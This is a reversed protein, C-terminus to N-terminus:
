TAALGNKRAQEALYRNKEKLEAALFNAYWEDETFQAKVETLEYRKVLGETFHQRVTIGDRKCRELIPELLNMKGSQKLVFIAYHRMTKDETDDKLEKDQKNETNKKPTAAGNLVTIIIALLLVASAAFLAMKFFGNVNRMYESNMRFLKILMTALNAAALLLIVIRLKKNAPAMYFDIFALLAMAGMLVPFAISKGSYVLEHPKLYSISIWTQGYMALGGLSFIIIFVRCNSLAGQIM